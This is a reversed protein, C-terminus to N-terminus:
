LELNLFAFVQCVTSLMIVLMATVVVCRFVFSSNKVVGAVRLDKCALELTMRGLVGELNDELLCVGWIETVELVSICLNVLVRLLPM